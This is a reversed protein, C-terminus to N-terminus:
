VEFLKWETETPMEGADNTVLFTDELDICGWDPIIIKPELALVMGDELVCRSSPTILPPEDIELGVGHGVYPFDYFASTM